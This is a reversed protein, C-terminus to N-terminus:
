WMDSWWEEALQCLLVNINKISVTKIENFGYLINLWYHWFYCGGHLVLGAQCFEKYGNNLFWVYVGSALLLFLSGFGQVLYISIECWCYFLNSYGAFLSLSSLAFWLCVLFVSAVAGTVLEKALSRTKRSSTAEYSCTISSNFVM